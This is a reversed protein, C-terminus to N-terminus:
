TRCFLYLCHKLSVEWARYLYWLSAKNWHSLKIHFSTLIIYLCLTEELQKLWRSSIKFKFFFIQSKISTNRNLFIKPTLILIQNLFCPYIELYVIFKLNKKWFIQLLCFNPWPLLIHINLKILHFLNVLLLRFIWSKVVSWLIM